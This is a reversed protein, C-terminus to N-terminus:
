KPDLNDVSILLTQGISNICKLYHGTKLTIAKKLTFGTNCKVEVCKNNILAHTKLPCLCKNAVDNYEQGYPCSPKPIVKNGFKLETVLPIITDATSVETSTDISKTPIKRMYSIILYIITCLVLLVIIIIIFTFDNTDM